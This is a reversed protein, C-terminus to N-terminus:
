TVAKVNAAFTGGTGALKDIADIAMNLQDIIADNGTIGAEVLAGRQVERDANTLRQRFSSDTLARGLM